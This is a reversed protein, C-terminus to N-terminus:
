SAYPLTLTFLVGKGLESQCHITGKLKHTVLNYTIHLGLGTGGGQRDTTFFPEFIKDVNEPAIGKGNDSYHIILQEAEQIAEIKIQGENSGAFGHQISNMILNTMVQSFAGAYTKLKIRADCDVSIQYNTSKLKPKLSFLIENIYDSLVFSRQRESVQDVAVQKFSQTLEAARTLNKLILGGMQHVSNLYKELDTRAMKGAKYLEAFDITVKDLQSAATVGVGVPTNIEHAVGAVLNGLSAMKESEVLQSQTEKLQTLTKALEANKAEIEASYLLAANKAEQEQILRIKDAEAQRRESIDQFASMAYLVNDKDGFIPRGWSELPITRDKQHVEINDVSTEKGLLARVIPLKKAPYLHTTGAIYLEYAETLQGTDTDQLVGRGLLEQGRKNVFYPKGANDLIGIGVPIAELFQRLTKENEQVEAYLKANQISIAIQSSLVELTEIRDTTFAGEVLNNELYLIGVLKGQNLLPMALVSKTQQQNIHPDRVFHGEVWANNLVVNEQTRAVYLVLTNAVDQSDELLLSQLVKVEGSNINGEAEIFWQEGKPLLLFGKEAGANEIVIRMMKELLRGLVIEGSLTQSAKMVSSLDLWGAKNGKKSTSALQTAAITAETVPMSITTTKAISLHAHKQELAEVKVIAGWRQYAYHAERLYMQAVASLNEALYFQGALEYAIAEEHLYHHTKAGVIAKEYLKAAVWQQGQVRAKEAEILEWKHQLNMPAYAAWTHLKEQNRQVRELYDAQEEKTATPYVALLALSYYFPNHTVPLAAKVTKEYAEAQAGHEIAAKFDGLLYCLMTKALYFRFLTTGSNAKLLLPLVEVEDFMEGSLLLKDNAEGVLNLVLQGWIQANYLQYTQKFRKVVYIYDQQKQQVTNLPEGILVLNQCYLMVSYSVYPVNGTELGLQINDPLPEVTHSAAERWHRIFFNYMCIVECEIVPSEFKESVALALRGFAYGTEIDGLPGCLVLGYLTYSYGALPSNGFDHCLQVMTFAFSLVLPPNIIQAPPFIIRLIGLAMLIEPDSMEPLDYLKEVSIGEPKADLLKVGLMAVTELGLELAEQMQNESFFRQIKVENIKAKDLASHANQLAIDALTEIQEFRTSLYAAELSELYLNFTLDYKDEWCCGEPLCQRGMALYNVAAGYATAMKAKRGAVLNLESLKLLETEDTLLEVGQNFQNVVDFVRDELVNTPTNVFLLRGIKLHIDQRQAENILAYAAQQVRDHLFQLQYVVFHSQHLDDGLIEPDSKPLVLGESLIPMLNEFTEVVSKEYIVSLTMVDFHSGICSALRLVCQSAEPLKRLKGVMLDVVNDTINIEEIHEVDWQWHSKIEENPPVFQLLGEEYLTHLFQSVFFPNGNTKRMVLDTLSVVSELSQHLSDAVLQNVDEFALPALTIQNISVGEERLKELTTTLPHTADVENDRYAGIFFLTTSAKTVLELLKLTASDAWQLDDLFLVLPHAPQCFVQMFNQFVLNFRTQSEAPGLQLVEPQKGIINEVEPLVDTIVKGNSGLAMLLKDKWHALQEVNETLLQQVLEKFASVIGSYPINRQFQDFKGTIFYGSTGSLSKYIEKVLVSKGIGSYGAVLMIETQGYIVREFGAFLRRIENERGYLKQPISFRDSIDKQALPFPEIAGTAELQRLCEELDAKIGWASQYRDEANKELLKLIIASVTQPISTNIESPPLPQKAIHCHVMEMPDDINFPLQGTFLQYFTAGLSYFDTRYDLARNMRGTQEPSMYALTGELVEPNKLTLHQKSLQTSIGFDIIKLVNTSPNWILNAPNIDKHIIQQAHIHGLIDCARIALALLESLTFCCKFLWRKLSQGGFDELSIMLSNQFREIQYVEAIGDIDSNLLRRMTDYEQRYRTLEESTPYDQKLIKLIVPQQDKERTARYVQSNDSNYIEEINTYNEINM